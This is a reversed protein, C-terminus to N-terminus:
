ETQADAEKEVAANPQTLSRIAAAIAQRTHAVVHEESSYSFRPEFYEAVKACEEIVMGRDVPPFALLGDIAQTLECIPCVRTGGCQCNPNNQSPKWKKLAAMAGAVVMGRDVPQSLAAAFQKIESDLSGGRGLGINSTIHMGLLAKVDGIPGGIEWYDDSRKQLYYGGPLELKHRESFLAMTAQDKTASM